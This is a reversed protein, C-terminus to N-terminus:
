ARILNVCPAFTAERQSRPTHETASDAKRKRYSKRSAAKAEEHGLVGSRWGQQDALFCPWCVKGHFGRAASGLAGPAFPKLLGCVKCYKM